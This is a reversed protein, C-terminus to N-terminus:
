GQDRRNLERNWVQNESGYDAFHQGRAPGQPMAPGPRARRLRDGGVRSVFGTALLFLAIPIGITTLVGLTIWGNQGWGDDVARWLWGFGGLWGAAAILAISLLARWWRGFMAWLALAWLAGSLALFILGGALLILATAWWPLSSLDVPM